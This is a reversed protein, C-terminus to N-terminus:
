VVELLAMTIDDPIETTDSMGAFSCVNDVIDNLIQVPESTDATLLQLLREEGFMEKSSNMIEIIGDTCFFLRNGSELSISTENYDPTDVWSSIPIGPMRLIRFVNRGFLIPPVNLGANSYTMTKRNINIVAYFMSIYLDHDFNDANFQAFLEKLAQSPSTTKKNMSSRLFITLMSASVGHGSVDAIYLGINDDDIRYIDLFDGGLTECPTYIFSFKVKDNPLHRPLLSCQLKRAMDLNAQLKTNQEIVKKQLQKLQTIDRLVEVVAIVEGSDNTVPSSMVSFIRDGIIEEKTFSKGEFAAKRSICNECPESKGIANFCKRGVPYCNLGEAMARNIFIINDDRDLVRVWDSMGNIIGNIFNIDM